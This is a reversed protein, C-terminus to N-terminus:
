QKLKKFKKNIIIILNKHKIVTRKIKIKKSKMKQMLQMLKAAYSNCYYDLLGDKLNCIKLMQIFKSINIVLNIKYKRVLCKQFLICRVIRVLIM